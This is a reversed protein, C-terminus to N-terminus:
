LVVGGVALGAAFLVFLLFVVVLRLPWSPTRTTDQTSSVRETLWRRALVDALDAETGARAIARVLEVSGSEAALRRADARAAPTVRGPGTAGFAIQAVRDFVADWLDPPVRGRITSDAWGAEELARRVDDRDDLKAVAYELEVLAGDVARADRARVVDRVLEAARWPPLVSRGPAATGTVVPQAHVVPPVTPVPPAAPVPVPAPPASPATAMGPPDIGYEYRYVLANARYENQPSAGQGRGLDVVVRNPVGGPGPPAAFFTIAAPEGATDGHTDFTWTRGPLATRGIALLAWVLALRDAEPCGVLGLPTGPSQFLWALSRALMDGQALARARLRTATDASRLDELRLLPLRREASAAGRWGTWDSTSLAVAPTLEHAVGMLVHAEVCRPSSPTWTRRLVAALGDSVLVYSFANMSSNGPASSFGLYPAILGLWGLEDQEGELSSALVSATGDEALRVVAQEVATTATSTM